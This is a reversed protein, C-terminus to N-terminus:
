NEGASCSELHGTVAKRAGERLDGGGGFRSIKERLGRGKVGFVV